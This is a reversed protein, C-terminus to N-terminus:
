QGANELLFIWNVKLGKITSIILVGTVALRNASSKLM